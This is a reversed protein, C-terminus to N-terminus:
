IKYVEIGTVAGPNDAYTGPNLTALKTGSGCGTTVHWLVV